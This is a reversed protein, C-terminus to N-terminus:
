PRLNLLRINGSPHTPVQTCCLQSHIKKIKKQQLTRLRSSPLTAVPPYPSFCFLLMLIQLSETRAHLEQGKVIDLKFVPVIWQIASFNNDKNTSM